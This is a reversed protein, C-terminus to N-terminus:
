KGKMNVIIWGYWKKKITVKRGAQRLRKIEKM